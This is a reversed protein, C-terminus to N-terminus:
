LIYLQIISGDALGHPSSSGFNSKAFCRADLIFLSGFLVREEELSDKGDGSERPLKFETNLKAFCTFVEELILFERFDNTGFIKSKRFFDRLLFRELESPHAM